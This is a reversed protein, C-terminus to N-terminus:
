KNSKSTWIIEPGPSTQGDTAVIVIRWVRTVVNPHVIREMREVRSLLAKIAM